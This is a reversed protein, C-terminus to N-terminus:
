SQTYVCVCLLPFNAPSSDSVAWAPQNLQTSMNHRNTDYEASCLFNLRPFFLCKEGVPLFHCVLWRSWVRLPLSSYCLFLFFFVTSNYLISINQPIAEWGPSFISLVLRFCWVERHRHTAPLFFFVHPDRRTSWSAKGVKHMKGAHLVIPNEVANWLVADRNQTCSAPSECVTHSRIDGCWPTAATLDCM